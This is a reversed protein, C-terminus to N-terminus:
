PAPALAVDVEYGGQVGTEYVFSCVMADVGHARADDLATLYRLPFALSEEDPDEIFDTCGAASLAVRACARDDGFVKGCKLFFDDPDLSLCPHAERARENKQRMESRNKNDLSCYHMGFAYGQDLAWLMLKLIAEESGAVALGGSYGYDYMVDFPPNKLKFGRRAFEDWNCFPFCFELLNIGDIDLEAARALLRRMHEGAGPIVPMEIMVTPFFRRALRMADFVREQLEPDDDDKISFRIEDLGARALASAANEDLLDGATYLRTHVHPWATRARGLLDLAGQLDLLPEGGTIGLCAMQSNEQMSRALADEWPCGHRFFRNYDPQNRNFCFYCDRHCAFTTSFTEVGRNGTCEVCATSLFGISLSAGGNRSEVGRAALQARLASRREAGDFALEFM